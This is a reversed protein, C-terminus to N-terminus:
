RREGRVTRAYYRREDPEMDRAHVPRCCMRSRHQVSLFLYRGGNSVGLVIRRDRYQKHQAMVYPNGFVQEIEADSVGHKLLNKGSNHEDWEFETYYAPRM